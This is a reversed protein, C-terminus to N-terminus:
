LLADLAEFTASVKKTTNSFIDREQQYYVGLPLPLGKKPLQALRNAQEIDSVKHIDANNAELCVQWDGQEYKLFKKETESGFCLKSYEAQNDLYVVHENRSKKDDYTAFAGDNFIPCNQYIEIFSTGQHNNAAKFLMALHKPDKDLGRAVFTAGSAQAMQIPNLPQTNVGEPTTKTIQELPSTPSSQGKTLGYVQNNLLLININVNRRLCHLLHSTGISLGDGDGTVLWVSLEPNMMKIGTAIAPARGHIAHFGYTNMYYPFRGACGIGSVFVIQEPKLGTSPLFRQMAALIAYDGCGPCWRVENSSTFSQKYLGTM